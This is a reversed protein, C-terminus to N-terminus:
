RVPLFTRDWRTRALADWPRRLIAVGGDGTHSSRPPLSWYVIMARGEINAAPVAGWFRSDNSADRNDGMVFYAGAPVTRTALQDRRRRNEPVSADDPWVRDDAHFAYPEDLLRGDIFVRKDRIRVTEGPLAVVRKIFDRRPDEPFKFVVIDGRRVPRGPLMKALAGDGRESYLYKNVLLRDGTLVNKEMSSSPVAFAQFLFTRAFLAFVIAAVLPDARERLPARAIRAPTAGTIPRGHVDSGM